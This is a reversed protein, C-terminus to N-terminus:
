VYVCVHVWVYVVRVTVCVYMCVYVVCAPLASSLAVYDLNVIVMMVDVQWMMVDVQWMECETVLTVKNGPCVRSHCLKKCDQLSM